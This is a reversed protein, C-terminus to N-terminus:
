SISPLLLKFERCVSFTYFLLMDQVEPYRSDIIRFTYTNNNLYKVLCIYKRKYNELIVIDGPKFQM